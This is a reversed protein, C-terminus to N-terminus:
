ALFVAQGIFPQRCLLEHTGLSLGLRGILDREAVADVAQSEQVGVLRKRLSDIDQRDIEIGEPPLKRDIQPAPWALLPKDSAEQSRVLNNVVVLGLLALFIPFRNILNLRSSM